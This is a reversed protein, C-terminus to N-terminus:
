NMIETAAIETTRYMPITFGEKEVIAVLEPNFQTDSCKKIENIAQSHSMAKRYPRDSTMADYADSLAIIQAELSLEKGSLGLPYGKGDYREHHYNIADMTTDSLELTNLIWSGIAPHKKVEEYELQTLKSPKHLIEDAVGIKGVDHLMGAIRIEEVKEESLGAKKALDAAYESVRESHGLTYKDKAEIASVLSSILDRNANGLELNKNHLEQIKNENIVVLEQMIDAMTNFTEAIYYLDSKKSFTLRTTLDGQKIKQTWDSIKIYSQAFRDQIRAFLSYTVIIDIFALLVIGGFIVMRALFSLTSATNILIAGLVLIIITPVSLSFLLWFKLKSNMQRIEITILGEYTVLYTM